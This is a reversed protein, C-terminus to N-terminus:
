FYMFRRVYNSALLVDIVYDLSLISQVTSRRWVYTNSKEYLITPVSINIPKRGSLKPSTSIGGGELKSGLM